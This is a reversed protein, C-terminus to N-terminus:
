GWGLKHVCVMVPIEVGRAWKWLGCLIDSVEVSSSQLLWIRPLEERGGRTSLHYTGTVQNSLGASTGSLFNNTQSEEEWFLILDGTCVCVYVCVCVCVCV